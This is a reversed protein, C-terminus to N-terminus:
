CPGDAAGVGTEEPAGELAGPVEDWGLCVGVILRSSCFPVWSVSGVGTVVVAEWAGVGEGVVLVWEGVGM